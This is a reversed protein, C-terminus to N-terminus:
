HELLLARMEAPTGVPSAFRGGPYGYRDVITGPKLTIKTAKGLFGNNPPFYTQIAKTPSTRSVAPGARQVVSQTAQVVRSVVAVVMPAVAIAAGVLATFLPLVFWARGDPDFRNM